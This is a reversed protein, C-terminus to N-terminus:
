APLSRESRIAVNVIAASPLSVWSPEVPQALGM